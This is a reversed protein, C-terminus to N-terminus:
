KRIHDYNAIFWQVTAGIAEKLPTFQFHPLYHRLKKNSATKRFQGIAKEEDLEIGHELQFADAIMQAANLITVEDCEDVCLMIPEIEPYERLVWLILKAIDM